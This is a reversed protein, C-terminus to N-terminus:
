GECAISPVTQSVSGGLKATIRKFTQIIRAASSKQKRLVALFRSYYGSASAFTNRRFPTCGSSEHSDTCSTSIRPGSRIAAYQILVTESRSPRTTAYHVLRCEVIVECRRGLGEGDLLFNPCRGSPGSSAKYAADIRCGYEPATLFGFVVQRSSLQRV